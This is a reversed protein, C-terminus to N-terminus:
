VLTPLTTYDSVGRIKLERPSMRPKLASSPQPLEDDDKIPFFIDASEVRNKGLGPPRFRLQSSTGRISHHNSYVRLYSLPLIHVDTPETGTQLVAIFYTLWSIFLIFVLSYSRGKRIGTAYIM